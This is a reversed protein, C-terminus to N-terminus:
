RRNRSQSLGYLAGTLFWYQLGVQTTFPTFGFVLGLVGANIAVVMAALARLEGSQGKTAVDLERKATVVLAWVYLGLLVCGGDLIWANPQLEAWIPPSQLNSPDGFYGLMMGWRGLGAGFPYDALMNAFADELQSGRGANYYVSTPDGELLTSFREVVTSGGM